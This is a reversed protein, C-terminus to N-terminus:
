IPTKRFNIHDMDYKISGLFPPQIVFIRAREKRMQCLLFHRMAVSTVVFNEEVIGV